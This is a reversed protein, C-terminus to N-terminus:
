TGIEAVQSQMGDAIRITWKECCPNITTFLRSDGIMHNSAEFDVIWVNSHNRKVNLAHIIYM